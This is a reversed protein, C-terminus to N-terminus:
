LEDHISLTRSQTPIETQDPSGLRTWLAVATACSRDHSISVVIKGEGGIEKARGHLTIFPKGGPENLVEISRWPVRRGLCKIVAVKAAFRGALEAVADGRRRSRELEARTYIRALFRERLVASAIRAIEIVGTGVELPGAPGTM